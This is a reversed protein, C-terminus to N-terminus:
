CENWAQLDSLNLLRQVNIHPVPLTWPHRNYPRDLLLAQGNPHAAAWASVHEPKDDVFVDGYVHTKTKVHYIAVDGGFRERLWDTREGIWTPCNWPSTAFVITHGCERLGHVVACAGPYEKLAACFGPAGCRAMFEARMHEPLLTEIEWQTVDDPTFRVDPAHAAPHLENIVELAGGVFDAIVGDVDLVYIM